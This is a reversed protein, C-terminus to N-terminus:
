NCGDSLAETEFSNANHKHNKGAQQEAQRKPLQEHQGADSCGANARLLLESGGDL